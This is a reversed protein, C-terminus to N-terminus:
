AGLRSLAYATAEARNRAGIKAYVDAIHREVTRESLVLADAIERTTKGDAILRLVEVQRGSLEAHVAAAVPTRVAERTALDNMFADIAALGQAADPMAAGGLLVLRSDPISAALITAQDPSFWALDRGHLVLTPTRLRALDEAVNSLSFARIFTLFDVQNATQRLRALESDRHSQPFDTPLQTRLFLDWSQESLTLPWGAVSIRCNILILAHLRDPNNAAYRVALHGVINIGVLVFRDLRLSDVVAELDRGWADLPMDQPLDRTSLGQGRPDYHVLRFRQSLGKMWEATPAHQHWNLEVHSLHLPVLVLPMGQGSHTYAIDYGDSAKVYQVPPADMTLTM